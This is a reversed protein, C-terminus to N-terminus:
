TNPDGIVRFCFCSGSICVGGDFGSWVCNRNCTFPDCAVANSSVPALFAALVLLATVALLRVVTRSRM